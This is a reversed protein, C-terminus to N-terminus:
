VLRPATAGEKFKKKFARKLPPEPVPKPACLHVGKKRKHLINGMPEGKVRMQSAKRQLIASEMTFFARRNVKNGGGGGGGWNTFPVRTPSKKECGETFFVVL